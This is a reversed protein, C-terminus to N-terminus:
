WKKIGGDWHLTSLENDRSFLVGFFYLPPEEHSGCPLSMHCKREYKLPAPLYLGGVHRSSLFNLSNLSSHWFCLSSSLTRRVVSDVSAGLFWVATARARVGGNREQSAAAECPPGGLRQWSGMWTRERGQNVSTLLVWTAMILKDLYNMYRERSEDLNGFKRISWPLM